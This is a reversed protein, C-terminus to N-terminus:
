SLWIFLYVTHYCWISMEDYGQASYFRAADAPESGWDFIIVITYGLYGPYTNCNKPQYDYGPLTFVLDFNEWKSTSTVFLEHIWSCLTNVFHLLHSKKALKLVQLNPPSPPGGGSREWFIIRLVVAMWISLTSCDLRIQASTYECLISRVHCRRLGTLRRGHLDTRLLNLHSDHRRLWRTPRVICRKWRMM